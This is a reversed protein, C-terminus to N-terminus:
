ESLKAICIKASSIDLAKTVADSVREVTVPDGGGECLVLVGRVEPLGNQYSSYASFSQGSGSDTTLMVKTKGAGEIKSLLEELKRETQEVAASAGSTGTSEPTSFTFFSSLFILLIGIAGAAIMIKRVSDSGLSKQLKEKIREKM